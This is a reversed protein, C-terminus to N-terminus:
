DTSAGVSVSNYIYLTGENEDAVMETTILDVWNSNGQLFKNANNSGKEIFLDTDDGSPILVWKIINNVLTATLLDGAKASISSNTSSSAAPVTYVSIVKYTDGAVATDPLASVTGSGNPDLTGQFNMAKIPGLAAAIDEASIRSEGSSNIIWAGTNGNDDSYTGDYTFSIVSNAKWTVKGSPNLVVNPVSSNNMALYVEESTNDRLFRVHITVGTEAVDFAPLTVRKVAMSALTDCTGYLMSGILVPEDTLNYGFKGIYSM